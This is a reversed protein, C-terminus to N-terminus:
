SDNDSDNNNDDNDNNNNNDNNNTNTDNNNNTNDNNNDQSFVCLIAATPFKHGRQSFGRKDRGRRSALTLSACFHGRLLLARLTREQPSGQPFLVNRLGQLAGSLVFM